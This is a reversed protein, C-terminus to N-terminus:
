GDINILWNVGFKDTLMGFEAGWPAKELPMTVQGGAALGTFYEHIKKSESSNGSISLSVMGNKSPTPMSMETSKPSDCGLISIEPATLAAHMILDKESEAVQAGGQGFTSMELEGGFISHYFNMAEKTHTDFNIYPSLLM